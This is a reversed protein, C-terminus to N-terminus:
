GRLKFSEGGGTQLTFTVDDENSPSIWCDTLEIV